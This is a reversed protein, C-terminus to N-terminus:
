SAEALRELPHKLRELRADPPEALAKRRVLPAYALLADPCALLVQVLVVRWHQVYPPRAM